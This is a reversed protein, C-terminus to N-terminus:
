YETKEEEERRKAPINEFIGWVLGALIIFGCIIAVIIDTM